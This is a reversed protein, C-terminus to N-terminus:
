VLFRGPTAQTLVSIHLFALAVFKEGLKILLFVADKLKEPLVSVFGNM